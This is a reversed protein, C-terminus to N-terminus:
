QHILQYVGIACATEGRLILSGLSFNKAGQQKAQEREADSWGGEPGIFLALHKAKSTASEEVKPLYTDAFYTYEQQTADQLAQEFGMVASVLPVIARGCQEAAEKAIAQLRDQKVGTKITHETIIPTITTVGCEVAKQVAWELSERKLVAVYLTVQKLPENHNERTGLLDVEIKIKHIAYVRVRYEKGKGDLVELEEGVQVRLVRVLQHVVDKDIIEGTKGTWLISAFFRHVKKM